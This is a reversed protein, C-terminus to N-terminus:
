FYFRLAFQMQRPNRAGTFEGFRANEQAGTAVNFRATADVASFQTHNFLNYAEWRFQLRMKERVAFNKFLATDFNNIGPGRFATKGAKGISRQAPMRVTETRFNRSFTREGKPLVPDGTLVVRAGQSPTGTFDFATITTLGIGLPQGSVFNTIGSLQWGGAVLRLARYPLRGGPVDWIYSINAVHTRDFGALGYNWVRPHVLPSVVGGDTDNYDLTKSWTWSANLDLGKSFRRKVQVQLSHYSSSGAADSALINNYGTFPRLFPAPLPSATTQSADRNAPDFNAGMPIANLDRQWFLRRGLSASYGVDGIVGWGLDQQIAFSFNQSYPISGTPDASFVDSPFVLSGASRLGSLQGFTIVPTTAIPPQSVFINTISEYYRAPYIGYGTRLATRGNGFVDIALGIRPAWQIPSDGYLGRPAGSGAVTMGASPSGVGPAIAGILPAPYAQGTVPHVGVRANGQRGPAVLRPANSATYNGPIFTAAQNQTEYIPPLWYWRVGLDLTVRRGLRWNDQVFWEVGSSRVDFLLRKTVESYQNFLGLAGNSYAYGTDSPNNVNRSFDAIGNFVVNRRQLRLFREVYLGAKVTHAGRTWTTNNAWNFLNYRNFLPFRGEIILNAANPVGGYTANPIVGLPNVAANLQGATFGVKDRLVKTLESEEFTDEAPQNLWTFNFENLLAPSLVATHRATFSKPTTGWTKNMLPWNLGGGSPIGVSGTHHENFSSHSFTLTHNASLNYDVKLTSTSKPLETDAVFNYNYNGRSITRDLFNPRPFVNLLARGSSDVRAAPIRNGPFPANTLPDRIPILRNNVDLAASFDGQRELETPVTVQGTRGVKTPWFEQNWFFFLKDRNRNFKGPIFIPGGISYTWTNYRYRPKAVGNRNNFFSNANFQEHRKFLSGLGHFDRTGSRTVIQMNAGSMRGSDASYNSVLIKVESVADQSVTLKLQFGNGMDSAPVGDIMVNNTARRNGQVYFEPSSNLDEQSTGVVVGPLLQLLDTVNRGRVLLNEIQNNTIVASRDASRTEVVAAQAAVSVTETVNGVELAITGLSLRDGTSLIIGTRQWQKFGGATVTLIYTGADLGSMQIEGRDDSAANRQRGTEPHTLVAKAGAVALGSPDAITATITGTTIQAGLPPAALTLLPMVTLTLRRFRLLM